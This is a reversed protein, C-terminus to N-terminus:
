SIVLKCVNNTNKSNVLNYSSVYYKLIEKPKWNKNMM